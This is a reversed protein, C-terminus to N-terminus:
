RAPRCGIDEWGSLREWEWQVVGSRRHVIADPYTM